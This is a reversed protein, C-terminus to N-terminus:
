RVRLVFEGSCDRCRYEEGRIRGARSDSFLRDRALIAASGCHPCGSERFSSNSHAVEPGRHSMSM